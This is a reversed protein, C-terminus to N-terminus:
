AEVIERQAAVGRATLTYGAVFTVTQLPDAWSAGALIFHAFLIDALGLLLFGSLIYAWVVWVRGGRFRSTLYLLVAAGVLVILDLAPYALAVVAEAGVAHAHAMPALAPVGVALLVVATTAGVALPAWRPGLPFGSTAVVRVFMATAALLPLYGLLFLADGISPTPPEVMAVYRYTGLAAEGAAFGGLWWALLMWAPRARNDRELRRVIAVADVCGLSLPAMMALFAPFFLWRTAGISMPPLVGLMPALVAGSGVVGLVVVARFVPRKM